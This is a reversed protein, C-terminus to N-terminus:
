QRLRTLTTERDERPGSAHEHGSPSTWVLLEDEFRAWWRTHHKLRHHTRCLHALNDHDTCGGDAWDDTHDVDCSSTARECGPFRCTGDRDALWARLAAPVRYTERDFCLRVGTVPHTLVRHWSDAGAALTKAVDLPIPGYGDIVAPEDGHGLLTLAPVTLTVGVRVPRLSAADAGDALGVPRGSRLVADVLADFRLQSMTRPDGAASEDMATGTLLAHALQVQMIPGYAMLWGMGDRAPQVTVGRSRSARESMTEPDLHERVRRCRHAFRNAPVDLRGSLVAQEFAGRDLPRFLQADEVLARAHAYSIDGSRLAETTAPLDACLVRAEAILTAAARESVRLVCAVEARTSRAVWDSADAAGARSGPAGEVEGVTVILEEHAENACRLADLLMTREAELAALNRRVRDLEGVIAAADDCHLADTSCM